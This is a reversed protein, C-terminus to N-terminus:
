GKMDHVTGCVTCRVSRSGEVKKADKISVSGSKGKLPNMVRQKAGHLADQQQHTCTCNQIM